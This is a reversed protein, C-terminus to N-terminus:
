VRLRAFGVPHHVVRRAIYDNDFHTLQSEKERAVGGFSIGLAAPTTRAITGDRAEALPARGLLLSVVFYATKSSTIGDPAFDTGLLAQLPRSVTGPDWAMDALQDVKSKRANAKCITACAWTTGGLHKTLLGQLAVKAKDTHGRMGGWEVGFRPSGDMLSELSHMTTLPGKPLDFFHRVVRVVCTDGQVIGLNLQLGAASKMGNPAFANHVADQDWGGFLRLASPAATLHLRFAAVGDQVVVVFM